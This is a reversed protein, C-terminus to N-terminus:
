SNVNEDFHSIKNTHALSNANNPTSMSREDQANKVHDNAARGKKGIYMTQLSLSKNGGTHVMVATAKGNIDKSFHLSGDRAPVVTDYKTVIDVVRYVDQATVARQGRPAETAEKGHENILHKIENSRLELNYGCINVDTDQEIRGSLDEGIKGLLLKEGCNKSAIAEDIFRHIQRENQAIHVRKSGALNDMEHQTYGDLLGGTYYSSFKSVEFISNAGYRLEHKKNSFFVGRLAIDQAAKRESSSNSCRSESV